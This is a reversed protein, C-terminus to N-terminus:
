DSVRWCAVPDTHPKGMLLPKSTDFCSFCARGFLMRRRRRRRWPGAHARERGTAQRSLAGRKGQLAGQLRGIPLLLSCAKFSFGAFSSGFYTSSPSPGPFDVKREVMEGDSEVQGSSRKSIYRGGSEKM